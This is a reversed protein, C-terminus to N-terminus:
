GTALRRPAYHSIYLAVGISLPVAIVLAIVSSLITGFLLPAVYAVFSKSGAVQNPQGNFAPLSKVVLFLAVGALIAVIVLAAVRAIGAFVRDGISGPVRAPVPERMPARMPDPARLDSNITM